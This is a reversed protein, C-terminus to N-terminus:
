PVIELKRLIFGAFNAENSTAAAVEGVMNGSPDATFRISTAAGCGVSRVPTEDVLSGDGNTDITIFMDRNGDEGTRITMEYTAGADLGTLNLGLSTPYSFANNQMMICYDGILYDHAPQGSWGGVNGILSFTVPGATGERNFLALSPDPTTTAPNGDLPPVNLINWKGNEFDDAKPHAIGEQGYLTSGADGQIDVNWQDVIKYAPEQPPIKKLIIAALNAENSISAVTNFRGVAMGTDSAVFRLSSTTGGGLTTVATEDALSGDGNSDITTSLVRSGDEGTRVILDYTGGAELGEITLGVTDPYGFYHNALLITYDGILTHQGRIGSWGGVDGQLTVVVPSIDGKSTNLSISPNHVTTNPNSLPPLNLVNWFGEADPGHPHAIGEQGYLTSGGDGQIDLNWQELTAIPAQEPTCLTGPDVYRFGQPHPHCITCRYGSFHNALSGDNRWHDTQTHCVQCVGDPNPDTGTGSEDYALTRPSKLKVTRNNISAEIFQGYALKACFKNEYPPFEPFNQRGNRITITTDTANLVEFWYYKGSNELIFLLGRENGTKRSWTAPDAWQSDNVVTDVIEFTTSKLTGDPNHESTANHVTLVVLDYGEPVGTPTVSQQSHQDHCDYCTREWVGHDDNGTTVNSHVAMEPASTDNYNGGTANNHCDTCPVYPSPPGQPHCLTCEWTSSYYINHFALSATASLLIIAAPLLCAAIYKKMKEGDTSPAPLM